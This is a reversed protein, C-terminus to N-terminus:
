SSALQLVRRFKEILPDTEDFALSYPWDGKLSEKKEESLPNTICGLFDLMKRNLEKARDEGIAERARQVKKEFAEKVAETCVFNKRGQYYEDLDQLGIFRLQNIVYNAILAKKFFVSEKERSPLNLLITQERLSPNPALIETGYLAIKMGEKFADEEGVLDPIASVFNYYADIRQNSSEPGKFYNKLMEKALDQSPDNNDVYLRVLQALQEPVINCWKEKTLAQCKREVLKSFPEDSEQAYGIDLENTRWIEEATSIDQPNELLKSATQTVLNKARKREQSTQQPLGNYEGIVQYAWLTTKDQPTLEGSIANFMIEVLQETRDPGSAEIRNM